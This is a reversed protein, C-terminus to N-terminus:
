ILRAPVIEVTGSRWAEADVFTVGAAVAAQADEPRDGVMVVEKEQHRRMAGLLMGPSPKRFSGVLDECNRMTSASTPHKSDDDASVVFAVEGSFDTCYWAESIDPLLTLCYHMEAATEEHSKHGAAVGGQNSAIVITAEIAKLEAIREEVGALLRQDTPHQVFTNRSKPKVLTGDKDLIILM